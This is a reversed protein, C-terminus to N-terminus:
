RQCMSRGFPRRRRRAHGSLLGTPIATHALVPWFRLREYEREKERREDLIAAMHQINKILEEDDVPKLIFHTVGLDIGRKAYEFESYGTVISYLTDPLVKQLNMIMDLGDMFPMNIDALVIDPKLEMAKEIGDLGNKAEGCVTCGYKEWPITVKLAERPFYEDDVLLVKYM